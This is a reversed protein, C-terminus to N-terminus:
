DAFYWAGNRLCSAPPEQRGIALIGFGQQGEEVSVVGPTTRFPKPQKQGDRLSQGQGIMRYLNGFGILGYGGHRLAVRCLWDTGSM